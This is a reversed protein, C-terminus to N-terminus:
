DWVRDVLEYCKNPPAEIHMFRVRGDELLELVLADLEHEYFEVYLKTGDPSIGVPVSQYPLQWTRLVKTMTGDVLAAEDL